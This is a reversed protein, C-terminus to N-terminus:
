QTNQPLFWLSITQGGSRNKEDSILQEIIMSFKVALAFLGLAEVSILYNIYYQSAYGYILAMATAPLFPLCYKLIPTFKELEFKFGCRRITFFALILWGLIVTCLNGFLVGIIGADQFIVLYTNVSVQVILKLVSIIVFFMALVCFVVTRKM